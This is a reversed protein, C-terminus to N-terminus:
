GRHCFKGKDDFYRNLRMVAYPLYGWTMENKNSQYYNISWLAWHLHSILTCFKVQELFTDIEEETVEVGRLKTLYLRVIEKRREFSPYKSLDVKFGPAKEYANNVVCEWFMNAFDFAIPGYCSYEFDVLCLHKAKEDTKFVNLAHLDCHILGKELDLSKMRSELWEIESKLHDINSLIGKYDNPNRWIEEKAKSFWDWLRQTMTNKSKYPIQHMQVVSSLFKDQLGTLLDKSTPHGGNHYREVRFTPTCLLPEVTLGYEYMKFIIETEINRDVLLSKSYLRFVIEDEELVIKWMMNSCGGTLPTVKVPSGPKYTIREKLLGVNEKLFLQEPTKINEIRAM